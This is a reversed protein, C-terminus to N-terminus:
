AIKCMRFLRLLIGPRTRRDFAQGGLRQMLGSRMTKRSGNGRKQDINTHGHTDGISEARIRAITGGAWATLRWRAGAEHAKQKCARPCVIPM